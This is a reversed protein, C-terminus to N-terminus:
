TYRNYAPPGALRWHDLRGPSRDYLIGFRTEHRRRYIDLYQVFGYAFLLCKKGIVDAELQEYPLNSEVPAYLAGFTKDPLLPEMEYSVERPPLYVPKRPLDELSKIVIFRSSIKQIFTPSKGSNKFHWRFCHSLVGPNEPNVHILNEWLILILAHDADMLAKTQGQITVLTWVAAWTGFFGVGVLAWTSWTVDWWPPKPSGQQPQSAPGDKKEATRNQNQSETVVSQAPTQQASEQKSPAPQQQSRNPPPSIQTLTLSTFLITIALRMPTYETCPCITNARRTARAGAKKKEGIPFM